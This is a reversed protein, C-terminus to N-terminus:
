MGAATERGLNERLDPLHFVNASAMVDREAGGRELEQGPEGRHRSRDRAGVYGGVDLRVGAGGAFDNRVREPFFQGRENLGPRAFGDPRFPHQRKILLFVIIMSQWM